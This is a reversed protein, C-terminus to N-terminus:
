QLNAKNDLFCSHTLEELNQAGGGRGGKKMELFYWALSLRLSM